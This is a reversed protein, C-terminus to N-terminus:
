NGGVKHSSTGDDSSAHSCPLMVIWVSSSAGPEIPQGVTSPFAPPVAQLATSTAARPSAGSALSRAGGSEGTRLAAEDSRCDRSPNAGGLGPDVFTAGTRRAFGGGPVKLGGVAPNVPSKTGEGVAAGPQGVAEATGALTVGSGGTGVAVGSRGVAVATGAARVGSGSTGVAVSSKGVAVTTGAARVGSGGTGVAVELGAAGVAVVPVKVPEMTGGTLPAPPRTPPLPPMGLGACVGSSPLKARNPVPTAPM